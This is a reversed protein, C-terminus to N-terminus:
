IYWTSLLHRKLHVCAEMHGQNAPMCGYASPGTISPPIYGVQASFPAIAISSMGKVAKWIGKFIQLFSCAVHGGTHRMLPKAFKAIGIYCIKVYCEVHLLYASSEKSVETITAFIRWLSCFSIPDAFHPRAPKSKKELSKLASLLALM